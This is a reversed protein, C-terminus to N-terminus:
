FGYKPCNSRHGYKAHLEPVIERYIIENQRGIKEDPDFKELPSLTKIGRHIAYGNNLVSFTFDALCMEYAQLMKDRQGEWSLREDFAPLLSSKSAVYIPEMYKQLYSRKWSDFIRMQKEHLDSVIWHYFNPIRQCKYCTNFHFIM